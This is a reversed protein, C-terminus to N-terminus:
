SQPEWNFYDPRGCGSCTFDGPHKPVNNKCTACTKEVKASPHEKNVVSIVTRDSGPALDVGVVRPKASLMEEALLAAYAVGDELSDQHPEAPNQFVRVQKLLLMFAWGEATTLDRGTLANFAAVTRAMSREGDPKDYAAARDRMHGAAKELVDTAKM